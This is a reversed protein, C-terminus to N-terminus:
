EAEETTDGQPEDEAHSADRGCEKDLLHGYAIILERTVDGPKENAIAHRGIRVVPVLEIMSNTIFVEEAARVEAITLPREEVDVGLGAALEMVTARTIGPVVPTTLPPTVLRGGAVVLLNGLAVDAVGGAATLWIIEFAGRAHAARLSALRNFYSTTKHGATPDTPAVYCDSVLLTVGKQYLEDAYRANAAASVAVTLAPTAAGAAQLSGTTVTVRVRAEDAETAAVVQRVGAALEDVDPLLTWGLVRASNHLRDLHRALRFPVGHYARLTECLGIGQLFASDFASVRADDANKLEGNLWVWQRVNSEALGQAM